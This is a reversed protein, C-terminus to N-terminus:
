WVPIKTSKHVLELFLDELSRNYNVTIDVGLLHMLSFVMDQPRESTRMWISSWVASKVIAEDESGDHNIGDFVIRLTQVARPNNAFCKILSGCWKSYQEPQGPFSIWGMPQNIDVKLLERLEVLGVGDKLREINAGVSAITCTKQTEFQPITNMDILGYTDKN